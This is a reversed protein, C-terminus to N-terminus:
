APAAGFPGRAWPGTIAFTIGPTQINAFFWKGSKSFTAGAWESARYDGPTVGLRTAAREELYLNNQGFAFIEGDTTLGLLRDPPRRLGTADECIMLAGSPAATINDPRNLQRADKSAYLLTLSSSAIHYHWVQGREAPGGDTSTFFVSGKEYWCGEGRSFFCAGQAIGEAVVRREFNSVGDHSDIDGRPAPESIAVWDIAFRTGASINFGPPLDLFHAHQNRRARSSGQGNLNVADSAKSSGVVRAMELRGGAAYDSPDNPVFRYFGSLGDDETEYAIGSTPDVAVAEHQFRGMATLPRASATGMAPVEFVFGHDRATRIPGAIGHSDTEECSLWAGTIPNPGGACNIATGTLSARSDVIEGRASDFTLTTTGGGVDDDYRPTAATGFPARESIEHNRVLILKNGREAVVAMGDHRPPTPSGDSMTEGVIGLARYTFGEPLRLLPLGTGAEPVPRLPGYADIPDEARSQALANFALTTSSAGVTLAAGRKLLDRRSLGNGM